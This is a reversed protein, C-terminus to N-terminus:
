QNLQKIVQERTYLVLTVHCAHPIFDTGVDITFSLTHCNHWLQDKGSDCVAHM